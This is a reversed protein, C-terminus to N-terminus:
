KLRQLIADHVANAPHADIHGAEYGAGRRIAEEAWLREAEKESIDDLSSILKEALRARLDLPLELVEHTLAEIDRM